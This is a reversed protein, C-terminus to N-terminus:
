RVLDLDNVGLCHKVGKVNDGTLSGDVVFDRRGGPTPNM